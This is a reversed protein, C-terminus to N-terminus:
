ADGGDFPDTSTYNSDARGGDVASLAALNASLDDYYGQVTNKLVQVEVLDASTQAADVGFSFIESWKEAALDTSFTGATHDVECLYMTGGYLVYAGETYATGTTWNTPPQLGSIAAALQDNGVSGNALRGDDRQILELRALVQDLTAKIANFENDLKAASVPDDPALEQDRRFNAQRNYETPQAMPLDPRTEHPRFTGERRGYHLSKRNKRSKRKVPPRPTASIPTRRTGTEKGLGNDVAIRGGSGAGLLRPPNEKPEDAPRRHITAHNPRNACNEHTKVTRRAIKETKQAPFHSIKRIAHQKSVHLESFPFNLPAPNATIAAARQGRGPPPRPRGRAGAQDAELLHSRTVSAADLM